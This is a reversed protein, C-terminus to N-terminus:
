IQMNRCKAGAHTFLINADKLLSPHPKQQVLSLGLPSPQSVERLKRRTRPWLLNWAKKLPKMQRVHWMAYRACLTRNPPWLTLWIWLCVLRARARVSLTLLAACIFIALVSTYMSRVGKTLIKTATTSQWLTGTMPTVARRCLSSHKVLTHSGFQRTFMTVMCPPRERRQWLHACLNAEDGSVPSSAVSRRKQCM